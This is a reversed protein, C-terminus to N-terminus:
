KAPRNRAPISSWGCLEDCTTSDLSQHVVGSFAADALEVFTGASLQDPFLAVCDAPGKSSRYLIGEFGARRILDALIQSPAPLDFQVPWIRWNHKAVMEHVQKPSHAMFLAHPPIQLRTRLERARQPMKIKRLVGALAATAAVERVDFLRHMHGRVFVTSHSIGHELALEEPTLGDTRSDSPLEFKERFATEFNEGLYLAPWPSLAGKDVDVGLNFRGGIRQLSGACSLPNDSYQFTVIRVWRDLILPTAPAAQLAAILDQRLRQREPEISFYLVDHLEDIYESLAKWKALTVESFRDLERLGIPEGPRTPRGPPPAAKKRRARTL